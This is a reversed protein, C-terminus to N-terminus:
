LNYGVVAHGPAPMIFNLCWALRTRWNDTGAIERFILGDVQEEIYLVDPGAYELSVEEINYGYAFGEECASDWYVVADSGKVRFGPIGIPMDDTIECYEIHTSMSKSLKNFTERGMVIHSLKGGEADVLTEMDMLAEEHSGSSTADHRLGGLRDDVSRNVGHFATSGPATIPLWAKFGTLCRRVAAGGGTDERDGDRFMFDGNAAATGATNPAINFDLTGAAAHRGTVKISTAGKLADAAESASFVVKMGKEVLRVMWPQELKVATASAVNSATAHLRVLDGWGGKFLQIELMRTAAKKAKEIEYTMATAFSGKGAGRRIIDGGVDAFHFNTAPLVQWAAHRSQETSAQNYGTAYTASGAQPNGHAVPVHFHEGFSNSKLTGKNKKLLRLTKSNSYDVEVIGNPYVKKLLAAENAVDFAM